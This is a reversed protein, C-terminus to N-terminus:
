GILLAVPLASLVDAIRLTADAGSASAQRGSLSDVLTRPAGGPLLLETDEWAKGVPWRGAGAVGMVNRPVVALAWSTGRRRAFCVLHRAFAGRVELALYDGRAFLESEDRRAGLVQRMVFMKLAGDRWDSLLREAIEGEDTGALASLMKRRRGFDVPRRNDPDVLLPDWVETGQYFDPVGPATAKLIVLGLSNVAGARGIDEVLEDVDQIFRQDGPELVREVFSTLAREFDTDPHTWSTHTKAERVSKLMYETVRGTLEPEELNQLPWVGVITQYLNLDFSNSASDAGCVEHWLSAHRGRWRRVLAAFTEAVESLVAIRSRIDESRKSDHTSSANLSDPHSSLRTEMLSHFHETTVTPISPDSGVDASSLLGAFRYLGTDEVGKAAVASALQQWRSTFEASLPPAWADKDCDETLPVSLLMRRIVELARIGPGGDFQTCSFQAGAEVAAADIRNRDSASPAGIATVYSRYVTMHATLEVIARRVDAVSLDRGHRDGAATRLAMTALSHVLGPFTQELVQRRADVEIGRFASPPTTALDGLVGAGKPDTLLAMAVDAFDYGTTGDVRWRPLEEDRPLVKEVLVVPHEREVGDLDERLRDLYGAPDALGDVHDIRFGAVRSDRVLHTVFSHTASYVHPDEVRVGVLGNIDLFRRYNIRHPGLEWYALRYHQADLVSELADFSRPDGPTGNLAEPVRKAAIGLGDCSEPSLPFTLDAYRVCISSSADEVTTGDGPSIAECLQIRIDGSELIEGFPGGLVPLLVRGGGAEWDIDFFKAFRSRRGLRLM